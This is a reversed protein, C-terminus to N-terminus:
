HSQRKETNTGSQRRKSIIRRLNKPRKRMIVYAGVSGVIVAIAIVLVVQEVLITSVSGFKVVRYNNADVVYVNGLSDVAVSRPFFQGKGSGPNGWQTIYTGSSDFKQVRVGDTVYVNDSSDVAVAVALPYNFQGPGSGKSGWQTIYNGDGTFKQVHPVASFGSDTVYVNGYSDVAVWSPGYFQGLGSGKSGWTTIFLGSSTFKEVRSNGNDAVYVNGSSDVAVGFPSDFQGPGSGRSGWQTIFSGSSDLKQVRRNLYDNVYVNGSSDVAISSVYSSWQTLYTGNSTFKQVRNNEGDTVYVNGSSDVAVGLPYNFQGPGSGQSGWALLFHYQNNKRELQSWYVTSGVIISVLVAALILFKIRQKRFNLFVNRM